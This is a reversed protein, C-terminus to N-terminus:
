LEPLTSNLVPQVGIIHSRQHDSAAHATKRMWIASTTLDPEEADVTELITPWM